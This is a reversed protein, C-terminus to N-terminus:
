ASFQKPNSFRSDVLKLFGAMMTELLSSEGDVSSHKISAVGVNFCSDNSETIRRALIGAYVAQGDMSISQTKSPPLSQSPANTQHVSLISSSAHIAMSVDTCMSVGPDFNKM